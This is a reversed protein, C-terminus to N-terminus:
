AELQEVAKVLQQERQKTRAANPSRGSLSCAELPPPMPGSIVARARAHLAAAAANGAAAASVPRAQLASHASSHAGAPSSRATAYTHRLLASTSLTTHQLPENGVQLAAATGANRNASNLVIEQNLEARAHELEDLAESQAIHLCTHM